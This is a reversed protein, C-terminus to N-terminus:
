RHTAWAANFLALVPASPPADDTWEFTRHEAGHTVTMRYTVADRAAHAPSPAKAGSLLAADILARLPRADELTVHGIGRGTFGGSTVIELRM